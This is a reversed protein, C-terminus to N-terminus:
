RLVDVINKVQEFFETARASDGRAALANAIDQAVLAYYLPINTTTSDPWRGERQLQSPAGYSKWLEVSKGIDVFGSPLRVTDPSERIPQSELKQLLGVRKVYNGLGLVDPYNGMSFYIPRNPFSDKIARLVLLQDRTLYGPPITADIAGHRFSLPHQFELYGPITDLEGDSLQWLNARRNLQRAYWPMGLYPTLAVTVDLRVGEVAQAYWLPFSDNDGNTIIVANPEASKLLDAGWERTFEQGTRSATSWNALIPVLALAMLPIRRKMSALGLGALFGWLSFTWMFFYDRERPERDVTNGLEPSQGLSYRFNLYYILLLTFTFILPAFYWFSGQTKRRVWGSRPYGAHTTRRADAQTTRRGDRWLLALGLFGLALMGVAVLRQPRPNQGGLDRMWQWSFYMWFQRLQAVFPARREIVANGGYQEREIIGKLRKATEVSFTCGAAIKGDECASGASVNIFPQHAARIPIFAFPSTGLFFGVALISLFKWRLTLRPRHMIAAIAAAPGALLGAPHVAYTLGTLYAVLVLLRDARRGDPNELWLLVLWSILALGLLALPYVKEMVVSQSWVTFATAGLLTTVASAALREGTREIRSRLLQEACLFWLGAALASAFAALLNIRVAYDSAIPLLGAVNAILVFMPNGPQHPIGLSAAAAIYEGADWMAVSPSLTLLYLIFVTLTMGAAALVLVRKRM